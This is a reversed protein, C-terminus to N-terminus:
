RLVTEQLGAKFCTKTTPTYELRFKKIDFCVQGRHFHVLGTCMGVFRATHICFVKSVSTNKLVHATHVVFDRPCLNHYMCYVSLKNPQKEFGTEM